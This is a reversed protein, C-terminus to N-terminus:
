RVCGHILQWAYQEPVLDFLMGALRDLERRHYCRRRWLVRKSRHLLVALVVSGVLQAM